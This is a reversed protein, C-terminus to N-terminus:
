FFIDNIGNNEKGCSVDKEQRPDSYVVEQEIFEYGKFRFSAGSIDNGTNL